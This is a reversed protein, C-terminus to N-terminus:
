VGLAVADITWSDLWKDGTEADDHNSQLEVMMIDAEVQADAPDEAKLFLTVKVAYSQKM